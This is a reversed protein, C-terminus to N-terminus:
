VTMVVSKIVLLQLFTIISHFTFHYKWWISSKGCYKNSLYYCWFSAFLGFYSLIIFPLYTIYMIGNIFFFVFALKAFIRDSIRRWSYTADRWFNVSIITTLILIITYIYLNNYYSYIAPIIFLLSSLILWKTEDLSAVYKEHNISMDLMELIVEKLDNIIPMDLIKFIVDNLNM